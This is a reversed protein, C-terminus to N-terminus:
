RGGPTPAPEPPQEVRIELERQIRQERRARKIREAELHRILEDNLKRLRALESQKELGKKEAVKFDFELEFNAESGDSALANVLVRNRGERVPVFAQFSGDPNLRVDPASEQTTLNV